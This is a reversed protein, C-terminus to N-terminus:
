KIEMKKAFDIIDLELAMSGCGTCKPRNKNAFHNQNHSSKEGCEECKYLLLKTHKMTQRNRLKLLRKKAAMLFPIKFIAEQFTIREIEISKKPLWTTKLEGRLSLIQVKISIEREILIKGRFAVKEKTVRKKM